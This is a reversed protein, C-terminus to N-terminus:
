LPSPRPQHQRGLPTKRTRRVPPVQQPSKYRWPQGLEQQYIRKWSRSVFTYSVCHITLIGLIRSLDDTMDDLIASSVVITRIRSTLHVAQRNSVVFRGRKIIYGHHLISNRTGNIVSLQGIVYRIIDRKIGQIHKVDLVRGMLGIATEVNRAGSLLANGVDPALKATAQLADALATEVQSFMQVFDGLARHYEDV